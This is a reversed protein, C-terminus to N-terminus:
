SPCGSIRRHHRPTGHLRALHGRETACIFHQDHEAASRAPEPPTPPRVVHGGHRPWAVAVQECIPPASASPPSTSRTPAATRPCSGRRGRARLARGGRRDRRADARRLVARDAAGPRPRARDRARRRRRLRDGAHRLGAGRGAHHRLGGRRRLDAGQGSGLHRHLAEFRQFGLLTVNPTARARARELGPGDGIVVLRRERLARFAEVITETHKYPVFRSVALYYDEKAAQLAFRAVTSRRICSRARGGTSRTSAGRSSRRTPSSTTSRTRPAPTGCACTTCCAACWRAACAARSAARACTSTSTSGPTACRRTSTPSTCSARARDARGQRLRPEVVARPRLGVLDLQEIALPM